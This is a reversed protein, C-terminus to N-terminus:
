LYLQHYIIVGLYRYGRNCFLPRRCIGLWLQPCSGSAVLKVDPTDGMSFSYIGYPPNQMTAWANSGIVNALARPAEAAMATMPAMALALLM